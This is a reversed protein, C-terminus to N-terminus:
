ARRDLRAYAGLRLAGGGTATLVLEGTGVTRGGLIRGLDAGTMRDTHATLLLFADPTCLRRIADLLPPLDTEIRWTTGGSGHGYTPPDLVIGEYRRGRRLERAVFARADDVLWRIPRDDLGNLAANRRAWAVASRAADVHAVSAGARALALTVLGTYGFLHLVSPQGRETVRDRLWPLMAAHEPFVGVQGADTPRLDVELEALRVTWGDHAASLGVGWWGRDRDFVLDADPWRDPRHRPEIAGPAPRDVLHPGFRELRRGGGADILEYDDVPRM